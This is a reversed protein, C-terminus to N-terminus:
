GPDPAPPPEIHAREASGAAHSAGPRPSDYSGVLGQRRARALVRARAPHGPRGRRAWGRSAWLGRTREREDPRVTYDRSGHRGLALQKRGHPQDRPVVRVAGSALLLLLLLAVALCVAGVGPRTLLGAKFETLLIALRGTAYLSAAAVCGVIVLLGAVEPDHRILGGLWTGRRRAGPHRRNRV